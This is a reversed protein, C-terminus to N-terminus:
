ERQNVHMLSRDVIAESVVVRMMPKRWDYQDAALDGIGHIDRHVYVFGEGNDGVKLYLNWRDL